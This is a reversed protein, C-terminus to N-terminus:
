TKKGLLMSDNNVILMLNRKLKFQSIVFLFYPVSFFYALFGLRNALIVFDSFILATIASFFLARFLSFRKIDKHIVFSHFFVTVALLTMFGWGSTSGGMQGVRVLLSLKRQLDYNFYDTYELLFLALKSFEYGNMNLFMIFVSSFALFFYSRSGSFRLWSFFLFVVGSLHSLISLSALFIKKKGDLFLFLFFFLAALYTRFLFAYNSVFFFTFFLFYFILLSTKVYNSLKLIIPIWAVGFIFVFWYYSVHLKNATFYLAPTIIESGFRYLSYEGSSYFNYYALYDSRLEFPNLISFQFFAFFLSFVGALLLFFRIIYCTPLRHGKM